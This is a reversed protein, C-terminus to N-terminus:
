AVLLQQGARLRTRRTIGNLECLDDISAGYREAIAYLHEGKEVTHFRTGMPYAAYNYRTRNLVLRDSWLLGDELDILKGPDIPVGKFRVEFHLHSGTSHGSSGGLGVLDGGDVEDGPKVKIRHLHAYFTELGNFHRVVVLRGFGGYTGAFRVIGPFATRVTDWVELDIDVGNH